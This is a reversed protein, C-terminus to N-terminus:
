PRERRTIGTRVPQEVRMAIIAVLARPGAAPHSLRCAPSRPHEGPALLMSHQREGVSAGGSVHTSPDMSVEVSPAFGQLLHEALQTSMASVV